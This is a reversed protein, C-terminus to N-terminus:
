RAVEAVFAYAPGPGTLVFRLAGPSPCADQVARRYARADGRDVLHHLTGHLTGHSPGPELREAKVWRAAARQVPSFEPVQLAARRRRLYEAGSTPRRASARKPPPPERRLLRVTWQARGECQKLADRLATAQRRLQRAVEAESPAVTGFRLPVVSAARRHAARVVRDHTRLSTVTPQVDVPADAVLVDFGAIRQIRVAARSLGRLGPAAPLGAVLAFLYLGRSPRAM